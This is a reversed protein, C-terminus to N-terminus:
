INSHAAVLQQSRTEEIQLCALHHNENEYKMSIVFFSKKALHVLLFPMPSHHIKLVLTANLISLEEPDCVPALPSLHYIYLYIFWVAKLSSFTIGSGVVQFM